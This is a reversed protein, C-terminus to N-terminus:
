DILNLYIKLQRLIRSFLLKVIAKLKKKNIFLEFFIIKQKLLQVFFYNLFKKNFKIFINNKRFIDFILRFYITYKTTIKFFIVINNIYARAFRRFKRLLRNIQRQVYTSLNKYNIITM